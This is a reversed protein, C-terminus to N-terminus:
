QVRPGIAGIAEYYQEEVALIAVVQEDSVELEAEDAQGLIFAVPEDDRVVVLEAGIDDDTKYSAVGRDRLYDVHWELVQRVAEFTIVATIDPALRDAVFEVAENLDYVTRRPKTALKETVSGVAVAAVVFSVLASLVVFLWIM